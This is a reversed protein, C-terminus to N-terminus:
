QNCLVERHFLFIILLLTLTNGVGVEVFINISADSLNM